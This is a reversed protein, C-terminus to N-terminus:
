TPMHTDETDRREKLWEVFEDLMVPGSIVIGTNIDRWVKDSEWTYDHITRISM